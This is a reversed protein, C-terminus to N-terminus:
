PLYRSIIGVKCINHHAVKDTVVVDPVRIHNLRDSDEHRVTVSAGLSDLVSQWDQSFRRDRSIVLVHLGSLIKRCGSVEVEKGKRSQRTRNAPALPLLCENVRLEERNDQGQEVERMLLESFGAPLLYAAKDVLHGLRVSDLIFLHSVIPVGHALCLLYNMTVCPGPCICIVSTELTSVNWSDSHTPLESLLSGGHVEIVQRLSKKDFRELESSRSREKASDSDSDSEKAQTVVSRTLIFSLGSFIERLTSSRASHRRGGAKSHEGSKEEDNEEESTQLM